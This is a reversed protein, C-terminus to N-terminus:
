KPSSVISCCISITFFNWYLKLMEQSLTPMGQEFALAITPWGESKVVVIPNARKNLGLLVERLVSELILELWQLLWNEQLCPPLHNKIDWSFFWRYFPRQYLQLSFNAGTCQHLFNNTITAHVTSSSPSLIIFKSCISTYIESCQWKCHGRMRHPVWWVGVCM